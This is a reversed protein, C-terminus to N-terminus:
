RPQRLLASPPLLCLVARNSPNDLVGSRATSQHLMTGTTGQAKTRRDAHRQPHRKIRAAQRTIAPQDPQGLGVPREPQAVRQGGADRLPPAARHAMAQPRQDALADELDGAAIGVLVIGVRQPGVWQQLQHAAAQGLASRVQGALRGERPQLVRDISVGDFAESLHEDLQVDPLPPAVARRRVHHQVQVPRIIRRMAVLLPHGVVAVVRLVHVEGQEHEVAFGVLEDGGHQPGTVHV